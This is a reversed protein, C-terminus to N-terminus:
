GAAHTVAHLGSEGIHVPVPQSLNPRPEARGRWVLTRPDGRAPGCGYNSDLPGVRHRESWQDCVGAIPWLDRRWQSGWRRNHPPFGLRSRQRALEDALHPRFRERHIDDGSQRHGTAGDRSPLRLRLRQCWRASQCARRHDSQRQREREPHGSQHPYRLWRGLLLLDPPEHQIGDARAGRDSARDNEVSQRTGYGPFAHELGVDRVTEGVAYGGATVTALNSYDIVADGTGGDYTYGSGTAYSLNGNAPDLRITEGAAFTDAPVITNAYNFVTAGTTGDYSYSGTSATAAAVKLAQLQGNIRLACGEDCNVVITYDETFEPQVQGTWRVSFTDPQILAADPTGAGWLGNNQATVAADVGVRGAPATFATNAYTRNLLGATASATNDLFGNGNSTGNIPLLAGTVNIAFTATGTVTIPYTGSYSVPQFLGGVSFSLNATSGALGHAGTTTVAATGTSATLQRFSYSLPQTHTFVNAAPINAFNGGNISWELRCRADGTTEVHEVRIHYRAAASAPVALVVPASQKSTGVTAPGDWGHEIIQTLGTGTDLLVRAKDDADLQFVYSGATTPQLHGDWTASYNDASNDPLIVVGNPTGYLWDFNVTPDIREFVFPHPYSQINYNCAGSSTAPLATAATIGFTLTTPTRSAVTYNADNFAVNNLNGGAFSLKVLHGARVGSFSGSTPTVM